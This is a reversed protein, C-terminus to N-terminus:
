GEFFDGEKFIISFSKNYLMTINLIILTPLV